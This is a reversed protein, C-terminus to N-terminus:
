KHLRRRQRSDPGFRMRAALSGSHRYMVIPAILKHCPTPSQAIFKRVYSEKAVIVQRCMTVYHLQACVFKYVLCRVFTMRLCKECTSAFADLVATANCVVYKVRTDARNMITM